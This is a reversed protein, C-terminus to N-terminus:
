YPVAKFGNIDDNGKDKDPPPKQPQPPPSWQVPARTLKVTVPSDGLKITRTEVKYGTKSILLKHDKNPDADPGKYTLECPTSSCIEYGDEKVSASDPDTNIRIKVFQNQLNQAPTLTAAATVPPAVVTPRPPAATAVPPPVPVPKSKTAAVAIVALVAVGVVAGVLIGKSGKKELAGSGSPDLPAPIAGSGSIASHPGSSTKNPGSDVGYGGSIGMSRYEGTAGVGSVTATMAAGGVRKLAALVEDMSRFRADPDKAMCRLITEEFAPSPNINPNMQRLAPAEENVHAMLINVSNPRDFPVKGTCMEYMIIGLSYIDTRADVRDGRIQEPAMYKPSGMFLGTQTLEEAPKGESVDKVLGFDLVKVFDTEDGHEVLFINAPKL